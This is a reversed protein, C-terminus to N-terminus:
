KKSKNEDWSEIETEVMSIALREKNNAKHYMTHAERVMQDIELMTNNDLIPIKYDNM